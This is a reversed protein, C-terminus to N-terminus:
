TTKGENETSQDDEKRYEDAIVTFVNSFSKMREKSLTGTFNVKAVCGDGIPITLTTESSLLKSLQFTLQTTNATVFEILALIDKKLSEAAYANGNCQANVILDIRNEIPTKM